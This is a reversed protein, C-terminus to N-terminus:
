EREAKAGRGKALAQQRSKARARNMLWVMAALGFILPFGLPLPTKPPPPLEAGRTARAAQEFAPVLGDFLEPPAAFV